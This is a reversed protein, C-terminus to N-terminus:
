PTHPNSQCLRFLLSVDRVALHHTKTGAGSWHHISLDLLLPWLLKLVRLSLTQIVEGPFGSSIALTEASYLPNLVSRLCSLSWWNHHLLQQMQSPGANTWDKERLKKLLPFWCSDELLQGWIVHDRWIFPTYTLTPLPPNYHISHYWGSRRKKVLGSMQEPGCTKTSSSESCFDERSHAEVSPAAERPSAWQSLSSM